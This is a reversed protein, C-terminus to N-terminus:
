TPSHHRVVMTHAHKHRYIYMSYLYYSTHYHKKHTITADSLLMVETVPLSLPHIAVPSLLHRFCLWWQWNWCKIHTQLLLAIRKFVRLLAQRKKWYLESLLIDCNGILSCKIVNCMGMWMGWQWLCRWGCWWNKTIRIWLFLLAMPLGLIVPVTCSIYCPTDGWFKLTTTGQLQGSM